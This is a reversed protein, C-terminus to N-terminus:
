NWDKSFKRANEASTCYVIVREFREKELMTFNGDKKREKKYENWKLERFTNGTRKLIIMINRAVIESECEQTVSNWPYATFDSPNTKSKM